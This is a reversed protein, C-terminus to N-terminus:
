RVKLNRGKLNGRRKKRQQSQCRGWGGAALPACRLAPLLGVAIPQGGSAGRELLWVGMRAEPFPEAIGVAGATRSAHFRSPRTTGESRVPLLRPQQSLKSCQAARRKLRVTFLGCGDATAACACTVAYGRRLVKWM